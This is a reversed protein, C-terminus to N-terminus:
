IKVEMANNLVMKIIDTMNQWSKLAFLQQKAMEPAHNILDKKLRNVKSVPAAPASMAYGGSVASPLRGRRGLHGTGDMTGATPWGVWLAQM